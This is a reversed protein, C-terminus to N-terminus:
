ISKVIKSFLNLLLDSEAIDYCVQVSLWIAEMLMVEELDMDFNGERFKLSNM